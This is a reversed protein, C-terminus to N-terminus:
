RERRPHPGASPLTSSEPCIDGTLGLGPLPPCLSHVTLISNLPLNQLFGSRFQSMPKFSFSEVSSVFLISILNLPLSTPATGRPSLDGAPDRSWVRRELGPLIQKPTKSGRGENSKPQMVARQAHGRPTLPPFWQQSCAHPFCGVQGQNLPTNENKKPTDQRICLVTVVQLM